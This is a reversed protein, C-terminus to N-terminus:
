INIFILLVVRIAMGYIHPHYQYQHHNYLAGTFWDVAVRGTFQPPWSFHGPRIPTTTTSTSPPLILANINDVTYQCGHLAFGIFTTRTILWYEPQVVLQNCSSPSSSSSLFELLVVAEGYFPILNRNCSPVPNFWWWCFRSYSSKKNEGTRVDEVNTRDQCWVLLSCGSWHLSHWLGARGLCPPKQTLIQLSYETHIAWTKGMQASIRPRIIGWVCDLANCPSTKHYKTPNQLLVRNLNFVRDVVQVVVFPCPIEWGPLFKCRMNLTNDMKTM